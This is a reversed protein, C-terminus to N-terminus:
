FGWMRRADAEALNFRIRAIGHIIHLGNQLHNLAPRPNAIHRQINAIDRQMRQDLGRITERYIDLTMSSIATIAIITNQIERIHNNFDFLFRGIIPQHNLLNFNFNM